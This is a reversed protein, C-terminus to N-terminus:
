ATQLTVQLNDILRAGDLHAAALVVLAGDDGAPPQLDASRRISLYDPRFGANELTRQAEGELVAYDRRGSCLREAVEGLTRYLAPARARADADLYRNRSSMALGDPERTTPAGVIEVPMCLDAVMRRIVMLQQFDKEGFVATHPQIINFLKSVVTAVGRFHGPRSAGCLIDSLGPVEVQTQGTAGAPYMEEVPPAFLLCVGAEALKLSDEELTRPYSLFDEGPGFQIPNVFISVVVCDAYHAARNVLALHGEHLNGMTPVLAIRKGPERWPALASRLATITSHTQM